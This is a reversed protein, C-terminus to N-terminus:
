DEDNEFIDLSDLNLNFRKKLADIKRRSTGIAGVMGIKDFLKADDLGILILNRALRGATLEGRDAIAKIEKIHKPELMVTFPILKDKKKPRAM